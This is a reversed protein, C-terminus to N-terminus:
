LDNNPHDCYLNSVFRRTTEGGPIGGGDKFMTTLCSHSHLVSITDTFEHCKQLKNSHTKEQYEPKRGVKM